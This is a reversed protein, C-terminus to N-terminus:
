HQCRLSQLYTEIDDIHWVNRNGQKSPKALYPPLQDHCIWKRITQPQLGIITALQKINILFLGKERYLNLVSINNM